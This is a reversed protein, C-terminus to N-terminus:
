MIFCANPNEDSFMEPAYVYEPISRYATYEYKKMELKSDEIKEEKEETKEEKKKGNEEKKEESAEEKKGEVKAEEKKEEKKDDKKSGEKPTIIECYRGSRQVRDCVKKADLGRGKVTVKDNPLDVTVEMVGDMKRLSRAVQKGCGGCHMKVKLVVTSDPPKPNVLDKISDVIKTISDILVEEKDDKLEPYLLVTRKGSKRKVTEYVNRADLKGKVTVKQEKLDIDIKELGPIGKLARRVKQKCGECDMDVKLVIKDEDKKDKKEEEPM